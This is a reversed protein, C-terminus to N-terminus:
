IVFEVLVRFNKATDTLHATDFHNVYDRRQVECPRSNKSWAFFESRLLERVSGRVKLARSPVLAEIKLWKAV